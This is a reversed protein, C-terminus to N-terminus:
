TPTLYMKGKERKKMESTSNGSGLMKVRRCSELLNKKKLNYCEVLVGRKAIVCVIASVDDM